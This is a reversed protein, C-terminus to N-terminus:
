KSVGISLQLSMLKLQREGDLGRGQQSLLHIILAEKYTLYMM